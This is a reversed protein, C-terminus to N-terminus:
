VNTAATDKCKLNGCPKNKAREVWEAFPKDNLSRGHYYTKHGCSHLVEIPKNTKM